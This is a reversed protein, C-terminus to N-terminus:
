LKARRLDEIFEAGNNVIANYLKEGKEKNAVTPDGIHGTSTLKKQSLEDVILLVRDGSSLHDESIFRSEMHKGSVKTAKEMKVLHPRKYLMHSTEFECGHQGEGVAERVKIHASVGMVLPDMVAFVVEPHEAKVQKAAIEIVPLNALRHGNFTIIKKFGHHILSKYVDKLLDIVTQSRLSITGPKGMHHPSDGFWIPPTMIVGAKAAIGEAYDIAEFSDTGLPLHPGHAETSGIPVIVLDSKKLYEAVEEWTMDQIWIKEM